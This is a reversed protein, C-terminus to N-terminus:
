LKSPQPAAGDVKKAHDNIATLSKDKTSPKPVKADNIFYHSDVIDKELKTSQAKNLVKVPEVPNGKFIKSLIGATKVASLQPRTWVDAVSGPPKPNGMTELKKLTTIKTTVRKPSVAKMGNLLTLNEASRADIM